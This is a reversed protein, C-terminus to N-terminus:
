ESEKFQLFINQLKEYEEQKNKLFLRAQLLNPPLDKYQDLFEDLKVVQETMNVYQKYKELIREPELDMVHMNQLDTELKELAQNYEKLKMSMFIHQSHSDETDKKLNHIINNANDISQQLCNIKKELSTAKTVLFHLKMNMEKEFIDKELEQINKRRGVIDLSTKNICPLGEAKLVLSVKDFEEKIDNALSKPELLFMHLFQKINKENALNEDTTGQIGEQLLELLNDHVPSNIDESKINSTDNSTFSHVKNCDM